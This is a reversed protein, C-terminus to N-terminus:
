VPPLDDDGYGGVVFIFSQLDIGDRPEMPALAHRAAAVLDLLCDYVDIRLDPAYVHAFPHGVRAAFDKTIDPKLFFHADPRWLFPLVTAAAWRLNSPRLVRAMASLERATPELTFRAFAVLADGGNPSRLLDLFRPAEFRPQLLDLGSVAAAVARPDVEGRAAAEVSGCGDLRAKAEVKYRREQDSYRGTEFGEAFFTRFRREAGDWGFYRPDSRGVEDRLIRRMAEESAAAPGIVRGDIKGRYLGGHLVVALEAKGFRGTWVTKASTTM